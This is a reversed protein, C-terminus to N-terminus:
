PLPQMPTLGFVSEGRLITIFGSIEGRLCSSCLSVRLFVPGSKQKEEHVKTYKTDEHHAKPNQRKM